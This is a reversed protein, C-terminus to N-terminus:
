LQMVEKRLYVTIISFCVTIPQVWQKPGYACEKIRLLLGKVSRTDGTNLDLKGNKNIQRPALLM